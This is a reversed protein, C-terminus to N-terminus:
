CATFYIDLRAPAGDAVAESWCQNHPFRVYTRWGDPGHRVIRQSDGPIDWVIVAWGGDCGSVSPVYNGLEGLEGHRGLDDVIRTVACEPGSVPDNFRLQGTVHQGAHTVFLTHMGEPVPDTGAPPDMRFRYCGVPATFTARGDSGTTADWRGIETAGLPIDNNAQDCPQMRMLTVPVGPVAAGGLTVTELVVTGQAPSEPPIAPPPASPPQVPSPQGGGPATPAAAIGPSQPTPATTADPLTISPLSDVQEAARDKACGAVAVAVCVAMVCGFWRKM